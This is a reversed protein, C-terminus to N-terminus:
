TKQFIFISENDSIPIINITEFMHENAISEIYDKKYFYLVHRNTREKGHDKIKEILTLNDNPQERFENSYVSYIRVNSNNSIKLFDKKLSEKDHYFPIFLYGRLILWKYCNYFVNQINNMYYLENDIISIHTFTNEDFIYPNSDYSPNYLYTNENYNYKCVQVISKSKSISTTKMNKRLLENMHGGHKIGICLHNNYVNNKYNLFIKCLNLYYQEQYFLDDQIFSYLDDYISEYTNADKYYDIETNFSEKKYKNKCWFILYLIIFIILIGEYINMNRYLLIINKLM